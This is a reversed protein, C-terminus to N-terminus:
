QNQNDYRYGGKETQAATYHRTHGYGYDYGYGYGYAGSGSQTLRNILVGTHVDNFVCGLFPVGTDSLRDVADSIQAQLAANQKVVLLTADVLPAMCECDSVLSIPAMDILIYDAQERLRVLLDRMGTGTTILDTSDNCRKGSVLLRLGEKTKLVPYDTRANRVMEHLANEAPAKVKFLKHVSPHRMDGDVLVVRHGRQALTLALNATVTTKGENELVSSILLVKGGHQAMRREVKTALMKYSEAFGFSTSPDSLLLGSKKAAAKGTRAKDKQEHYVTGLCPVEVGRRLDAEEKVTDRLYSLVGVLALVAAGALLGALLGLTFPGTTPVPSTPIEPSQLVSVVVNSMISDTIENYGTLVAHIARYSDLASDTVVTLTILNTEDVIQASITGDFAEGGPANTVKTKMVNSQLIQSFSEALTNAAKWNSYATSDSNTFSVVLTATTAYQPRRFATVGMVTYLMVMIACLLAVWWSKLMDRVVVAIRFSNTGTHAQEEM